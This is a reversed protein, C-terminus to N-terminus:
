IHRLTKPVAVFDFYSRVYRQRNVTVYLDSFHEICGINLVMFKASNMPMVHVLQQFLIANYFESDHYLIKL